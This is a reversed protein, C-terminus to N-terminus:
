AKIHIASEKQTGLPLSSLGSNLETSPAAKCHHEWESPHEDGHMPKIPLGCKPCTRMPPSEPEAGGQLELEFMQRYMQARSRWLPGEGTMDAYQFAYGMLHILDKLQTPNLDM